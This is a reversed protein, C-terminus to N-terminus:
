RLRQWMEEKEAELKHVERVLSSVQDELDLIRENKLLEPYANVIQKRLEIASPEFLKGHIVQHNQDRGNYMGEQCHLYRRMAEEDGKLMADIAQEFMRHVWGALNYALDTQIRYEMDSELDSCLDRVKKLSSKVADDTLADQLTSELLSRTERVADIM